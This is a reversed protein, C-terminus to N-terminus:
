QSGAFLLYGCVARMARRETSGPELAPSSASTAVARLIATVVRETAASVPVAMENKYDQLLQPVKLHLAVDNAWSGLREEEAELVRNIRPRRYHATVLARV